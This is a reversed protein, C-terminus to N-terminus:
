NNLPDLLNNKSFANNREVCSPCELCANKSGLYCTWTQSYDVNLKNGLAIIESKTKNVFPARISISDKRNLKLVKNIKDLFDTTCDWYSYDDQAQSGYFINHIGLSEAYASAISLLLMNRNPVYTSPQLLEEENLDELKPVPIDGQILSSTQSLITQLFSLDVIFHKKVGLTKCQWNAKELEKIHKQGYNFSLVYIEKYNLEKSIYHLLTTSDLGGSCLILAKIQNNKM